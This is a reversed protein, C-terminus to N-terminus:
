YADNLGRKLNRVQAEKVIERVKLRADTNDAWHSRGNAEREMQIIEYEDPNERKFIKNYFAPPQVKKGNVVVYDHPYVDSKWKELWPAGVGPRRSMNNFEPTLQYPNGLDDFRLYHLKALDGNVKQVCYRAAYAASEFTVDGVTSFGFPWLKNLQESTYLREGSSTNTFHVKDAFDVNFLCAHYHPRLLQPGYEGCMYFRAETPAISKRLRKMFLQFDRYVLHGGDPLNADSYTLTVFANNKYLSAEHMCRMAWQRSRELRCGLCQGCPLSLERYIDHRAREVFVVDGNMCQYALLPSYCPM